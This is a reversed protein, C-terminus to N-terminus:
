QGGGNGDKGDEAGWPRVSVRNGAVACVEVARGKEIYEGGAEVQYVVGDIEAKGSPRLTTAAVGRRGRLGLPDAPEPGGEAPEGATGTIATGLTLRDFLRLRPGFLAILAIGAVAGAMGLAAVAANRGLAQWEWDFRPLVFDQMSLVLSLGTLALGAIGAAGFGPILFLEVALLGLGALFLVIELSDVKGLLAGAGFVLAFAIIATVGPIGFGPAQLELFIMVLGLLILLAQVPGSSLVSIVGDAAGPSSEVVEGEAGLLNVLSARDGALGSALGYKVAEGATLSLLKGPASVQALRKVERGAEGLRELEGATLVRPEGDVEAEWVEVDYDVMALALAEPYGNMEALAAMQSRVASVTKEGAGETRGGEGQVVPAAAGLSTGRAMYVRGCSMAILAGASWSVGMSDEGANTVWAATKPGKISSIFSTIQLASDVRGGFTDIEFVIFAAEAAVARRAERRVFASMSPSIDGKIPVIWVQASLAPLPLALM